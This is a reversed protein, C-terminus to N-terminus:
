LQLPYHDHRRHPFIRILDHGGEPDAPNHCYDALTAVDRARYPTELELTTKAWKSMVLHSEVDPMAQLAQLLAVALPAGTAGTVGVILKM